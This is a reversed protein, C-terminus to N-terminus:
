SLRCGCSATATAVFPTAPPNRASHRRQAVGAALIERRDEREIRLRHAEQARQRGLTEICQMSRRCIVFDDLDVAFDGREQEREAFARRVVARVIEPEDLAIRMEEVDVADDDRRRMAAASEARHEVVIDCRERGAREV